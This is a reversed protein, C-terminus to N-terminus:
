PGSPALVRIIYAYAQSSLQSNVEEVEMTCINVLLRFSSRVLTDYVHRSLVM